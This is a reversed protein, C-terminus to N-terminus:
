RAAPAQLLPPRPIDAHFLHCPKLKQADHAAAISVSPGGLIVVATSWAVMRHGNCPGHHGLLEVKGIKEVGSLGRGGKIWAGAARHHGTNAALGDCIRLAYKREESAFTM